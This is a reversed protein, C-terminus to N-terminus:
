GFLPFEFKRYKSNEFGRIESVMAENVQQGTSENVGWGGM